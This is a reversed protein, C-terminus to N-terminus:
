LAANYQIIETKRRFSPKEYTVDVPKSLYSRM